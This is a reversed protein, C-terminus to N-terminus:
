PKFNAFAKYAAIGVTHYKKSLLLLYIHEVPALRGTPLCTNGQVINM